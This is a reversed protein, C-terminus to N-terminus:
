KIKTGEEYGVIYYAQVFEAFRKKLEAISPSIGRKSYERKIDDEFLDIEKIIEDIKPLGGINDPGM